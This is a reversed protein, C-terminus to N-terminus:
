ELMFSFLFIRNFINTFIEADMHDFTKRAIALNRNATNVAKNIHTEFNLKSEIYVGIDKECDSLKLKQGDMHYKGEIISNDKNYGIGLIGSIQALFWRPWSIQALLDPGVPSRPRPSRPWNSIQAM